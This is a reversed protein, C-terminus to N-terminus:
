AVYRAIAMGAAALLLLAANVRNAWASRRQLAGMETGLRSKEAADAAGALAAGIAGIRTGTPRMVLIGLLFALIAAAAAAAYTAGFGSRFYAASFGASMIWMLRLGSLITLLAVIPMVVFLRRRTMEGMIAGAAPGAKALAPSLYFASFLGSGVWFVGGLIHVLRLVIIEM